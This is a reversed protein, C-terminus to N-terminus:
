PEVRKWDQGRCFVSVCGEVDLAGGKLTMKSRYTRNDAPDWITGGSYAGDGDDKMGEIISKGLNPYSPDEGKATFARSITGCTLAADSACPAISVELYGGNKGKQTQWLGDAGGACALAPMAAVFLSIAITRM